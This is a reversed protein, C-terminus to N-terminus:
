LRVFLEKTQSKGYPLVVGAEEFLDQDSSVISGVRGVTLGFPYKRDALYIEQDSAIPQNKSILTVKISSGGILLADVMNPGIKVPIEVSKDFLTKVESTKDDVRIVEGFFIGPKVVAIMGEKLGDNKGAHLLVLDSSNFPYSSYVKSILYTVRHEQVIEPRLKLEAIQAQLAQNDLTLDQLNEIIDHRNFIGRFLVKPTQLASIIKSNVYTKPIFFFQVTLFLLSFIALVIVVKKRKM